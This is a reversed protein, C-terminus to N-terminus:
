WLFFQRGIDMNNATPSIRHRWITLIMIVDDFIFMKRTVPWHRPAKVNEKIQAQISPQTFLRSIQHNSVGDRGNHRWLLSLILADWKYIQHWWIENTPTFYRCWAVVPNLTSKDVISWCICVENCELLFSALRSFTGTLINDMRGVNRQSWYARLLNTVIVDYHAHHRRFDGADQNSAWGNTWAYILSFMLAGRWQGKYPSDVLSLHIGRVFALLKSFTEM